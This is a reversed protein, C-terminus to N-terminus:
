KGEKKPLSNRFSALTKKAEELDNILGDQNEEIAVLLDPLIKVAAIKVKLPADVLCDTVPDDPDDEDTIRAWLIRWEGALKCFNLLLSKQDGLDEPHKGWCFADIRGRVRSLYGEYGQIEETLAAAVQKVTAAKQSISDLVETPERKEAEPASFRVREM